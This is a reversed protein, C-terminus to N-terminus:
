HISRLPPNGPCQRGGAHLIDDDVFLLELACAFDAPQRGSLQDIPSPRLAYLSMILVLHSRWANSQFEICPLESWTEIPKVENRQLHILSGFTM